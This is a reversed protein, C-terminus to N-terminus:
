MFTGNLYKGNKLNHLFGRPSIVEFIKSEEPKKKQREM